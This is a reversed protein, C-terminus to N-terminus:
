THEGNRQIVENQEHESRRARGQRKQEADEREKQNRQAREIRKKESEENQQSFRAQRDAKRRQSVEIDEIMRGINELRREMAANQLELMRRINMRKTEALLNDPDSYDSQQKHSQNPAVLPIHPGRNDWFTSLFLTLKYILNIMDIIRLFLSEQRVQGGFSKEFEAGGLRKLIALVNQASKAYKGITATNVVVRHVACHRIQRIRHLDSCFVEREQESIGCSQFAVKHHFCFFETVKESLRSLEAAEPCSWHCEDVM